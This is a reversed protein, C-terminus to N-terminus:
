LTFSFDDVLAGPLRASRTSRAGYTSPDILLEPERTLDVLCDGLMRYLTEDFRMAPVPAVLRGREVWFTAFRTMGTTRCASRDSYNLYWLNGVYLGTGLESLVDEDAAVFGTRSAQGPKAEATIDAIARGTITTIRELEEEAHLGTRALTPFDEADVAQQRGKDWEGRDYDNPAGNEVTVPVLAYRGEQTRVTVYVEGDATVHPSPLDPPSESTEPYLRHACGGLIVRDTIRVSELLKEMRGALRTRDAAPCWIQVIYLSNEFPHLRSRGSPIM